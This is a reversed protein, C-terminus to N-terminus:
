LGQPFRSTVHCGQGQSIHALDIGAADTGHGTRADVDGVAFEDHQHARRATALRCDQPHDRPELRDGIALHADAVAHHVIEFRCVAVDGHHELVVRKVRMHGHPPVHFVPQLVAAHRPVLDVAADGSGGRRQLDVLEEVALRPLQRTALALTDGHAAGDHAFRRHEQEVFRQRVEVGLQARLEAGFQLVQVLAKAGGEDEDGVILDFRHAQGVADDDHRFSPDFLDARRHLQVEM